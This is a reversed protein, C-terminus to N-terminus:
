DAEMRESKSELDFFDREVLIFWDKYRIYLDRGVMAICQQDNGFYKFDDAWLEQGDVTRIRAGLKIV